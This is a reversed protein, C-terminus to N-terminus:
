RRTSLCGFGKGLFAAVEPEGGAAAILQLRKALAQARLMLDIRGGM